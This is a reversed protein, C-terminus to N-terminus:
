RVEGGPTQVLYTGPTDAMTVTRGPVCHGDTTVWVDTDDPIAHQYTMSVTVTIMTKRKNGKSNRMLKDLTM